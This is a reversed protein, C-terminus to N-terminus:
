CKGGTRRRKKAAKENAIHQVIGIEDMMEASFQRFRGSKVYSAWEERERRGGDGVLTWGTWWGLDLGGGVLSRCM